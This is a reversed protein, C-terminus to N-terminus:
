LLSHGPPSARKFPHSAACACESRGGIRAECSWRLFSEGQVFQQLKSVDLAQEVLRDLAPEELLALELGEHELV